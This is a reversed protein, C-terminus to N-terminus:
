GELTALPSSPDVGLLQRVAAETEAYAGEGFHVYRRAGDRDHLYFAPWYHNGFARWIAHDPDLAVPFSIAEDSVFAAVNDPDAEFDFEPSHISLVVLGDAAYREHLAKVFPLTHKCNICEFTWFDYLVVKGALDAAGLPATNLWRDATVAPASPALIPLVVPAVVPAAGADLVVSGSARSTVQDANTSRAVAIGVLSVVALTALGLRARNPNM